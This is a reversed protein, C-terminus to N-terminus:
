IHQDTIRMQHFFKHKGKGKREKEKGKGEKREKGKREREKMIVKKEERGTGNEM